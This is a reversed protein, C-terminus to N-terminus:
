ATKRRSAGVAKAVPQVVDKIASLNASALDGFQDTFKGMTEM